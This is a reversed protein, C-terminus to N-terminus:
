IYDDIGKKYNKYLQELKEPNGASAEERAENLERMCDQAGMKDGTKDPHFKDALFRYIGEPTRPEKSPANKEYVEIKSKDM